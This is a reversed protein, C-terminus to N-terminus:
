QLGRHEAVQYTGKSYPWEALDSSVVRCSKSQSDRVAEELHSSSCTNLVQCRLHRAGAIGHVGDLGAELSQHVLWVGLQDSDASALLEDIRPLHVITTGYVLCLIQVFRRMMQEM